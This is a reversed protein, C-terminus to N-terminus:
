KTSSPKNPKTNVTPPSPKNSDTSSPQAGLAGAIATAVKVAHDRLAEPDPGLGTCEGAAWLGPGAAGTEDVRVAFGAETERVECGAQSALEFAPAGPLAVAVIGADISGGRKTRVAKVATRGRIEAVDAEDLQAAVRKGLREAVRDAWQTRGVLVVDDVPELGRALLAMLARASMVGPLDNGSASLVGDHAGTALVIAEATWAIAGSQDTSLVEGEYVGAVTTRHLAVGPTRALEGLKAREAESSVAFSGGPELGEDLVDVPIGRRALESAVTLGALGAGIVLVRARRREAPRPAEPADPLRGIGAMQRAFTQMVDGVAPVGAMLHHHDIGKPFFWDTIRLLDTKASGLVNQVGVQEGGRCAVLCTMVNPVGDVRALCGDCDGRLCSPGRPRHLKPSRAIAGEGNALLAVAVPEGREAVVTKGDLTLEVPDRPSATRKFM